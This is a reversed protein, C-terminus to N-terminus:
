PGFGAERTADQQAADKLQIKLGRSLAEVLRVYKEVVLDLDADSNPDLNLESCVKFLEVSEARFVYPLGWPGRLRCLDDLVQQQHDTLVKKTLVLKWQGRGDVSASATHEAVKAEFYGSMEVIDGPQLDDRKGEESVHVLEGVKLPLGEGIFVIEVPKGELFELLQKSPLPINWTM